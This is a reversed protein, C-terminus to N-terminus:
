AQRKPRLLFVLMLGWGLMVLVSAVAIPLRRDLIEIPGAILPPIAISAAVVSQNIGLIKGQDTANAQQSVFTTLNPATMGQTIAILPVIAYLGWVVQPILVSGLALSLGLISFKLVQSPAWKGATRRVLIGQVLAICLGIFAFYSGIDGQDFAFEKVLYVQNFSTFFNFGLNYLFIAIFLLALPSRMAEWLNQMGSFANVKRTSPERLTEKFNRVVLAINVLSLLAAAWFPTDYYFWSVLDPDALKGGLFPGFIFGLGFAMGILGFNKTRNEQNSIDSISSQIISINGGTFGDILRGLFLLYINHAMIGYAFILYGIFTGVLSLLLMRKRGYKDSLSALVPGGFFTALPYAAILWGLLITRMDMSMGMPLVGSNEDLLLPTTIPQAIGVGLLDLFVTFFITFVLPRDKNQEKM